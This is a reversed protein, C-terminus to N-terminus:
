HGYTIRIQHFDHIILIEDRSISKEFEGTCIVIITVPFSVEKEFRPFPPALSYFRVNETLAATM